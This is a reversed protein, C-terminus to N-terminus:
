VEMVFDNSTISTRKNMIPNPHTHNNTTHSWILAMVIPLITLLVLHVYYPISATTVKPFLWLGRRAGDRIMHSTYILAIQSIHRKWSPPQFVTLLAIIIYLSIFCHGFPRSTLHTAKFFSISGSALFHDVDIMTGYLYSSMVDRSFEKLTTPMGIIVDHKGNVSQNQFSNHSM